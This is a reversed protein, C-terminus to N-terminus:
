DNAAVLKGQDKWSVAFGSEYRLDIVNINEFKGRLKEKYVDVFETLKEHKDETPLIIKKGDNVLLMWDEQKDVELGSIRLEIPKLIGNAIMYWNAVEEVQNQKGSFVPLGLLEDETQVVKLEGQMNIFGYEGWKAIPQEEQVKLVITDPWIRKVMVFEIWPNEEIKQKIASLKVELFDKNIQERVIQEVTGKSVREFTGEIVVQEVPLEFKNQFFNAVREYPFRSVGIGLGTLCFLLFVMLLFTSVRKKSSPAEKSAGRKGTEKAKIARRRPM